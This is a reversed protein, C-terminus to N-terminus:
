AAPNKARGFIQLDVVQGRDMVYQRDVYQSAVEPEHTVVVITTNHEEVIERMLAFSAQKADPDLAGTPEDLLILDPDTVMARMMSARMMEGGSLSGVESELKHLMDFRDALEAIKRESVDIGNGNHVRKIEENVPTSREMMPTQFGIGLHQRKIKQLEAKSILNINRGYLFVEGGDPVTVGKLMSLASSKGAGSKGTLIALEGPFFEMSVNQVIAAQGIVKSVNRLEAITAGPALEITPAQRGFINLISM